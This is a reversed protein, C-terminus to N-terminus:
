PAKGVGTEESAWIANWEGGGEAVFPELVAPVGPSIAPLPAYTAKSLDVTGGDGGRKVLTYDMPETVVWEGLDFIPPNEKKRYIAMAIGDFYYDRDIATYMGNKLYITVEPEKASCDITGQLDGKFPFIALATGEMAGDRIEFYEGNGLQHLDFEVNGLVPIGVPSFSVDGTGMRPSNYFGSFAGSYHGGKCSGGGGPLTTSPVTEEWSFTATSKNSGPGSVSAGNSGSATTAACDCASWGVSTNCIQRGAVTKGNDQCSCSQTLNNAPCPTGIDNGKEAVVTANGGSAPNAGYPQESVQTSFAAICVICSIFGVTKFVQAM